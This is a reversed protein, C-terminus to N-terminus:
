APDAREVVMENPGAVYGLRQESTAARGTRIRDRLVDIGLAVALLVFIGFEGVPDVLRTANAYTPPQSTSVFGPVMPLVCSIALFILLASGASAILVLPLRRRGTSRPSLGAMAPGAALVAVLATTNGTATVPVALALATWVAAGTVAALLAPTVTRLMVASRRDTVWVVAIIQLTVVVVWFLLASPEHARTAAGTAEAVLVALCAIRASMRITM